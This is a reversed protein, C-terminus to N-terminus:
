LEKCNQFNEPLNGLKSQNLIMSKFNYHRSKMKKLQESALSLRIENGRETVIIRM